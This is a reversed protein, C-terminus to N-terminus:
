RAPRVGRGKASETGPTALQRRALRGRASSGRSTALSKALQSRRLVKPRRSKATKVRSTRKPNRAPSTALRRSSSMSQRMPSSTTEPLPGLRSRRGSGQSTPLAIAAHSLAPPRPTGDALDESPDTRRVAPEARSSDRRDHRASALAGPQLPHVGMAQTAGRRGLHEAGPRSELLDALDQSVLTQERRGDVRLDVADRESCSARGQGPASLPALWHARESRRELIVEGEPAREAELEVAVTAKEGLEDGVAVGGASLRDRDLQGDGPRGQRLPVSGAQAACRSVTTRPKAFYRANTSSRVPDAQRSAERCSGGPSARDRSRARPTPRMTAADFAGRVSAAPSSRSWPRGGRCSRIRDPLGEPEIATVDVEVIAEKDDTVRLEALGALNRQVLAGDFRQARIGFHLSSSQGRALM